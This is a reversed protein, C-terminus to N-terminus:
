RISLIYDNLSMRMGEQIIGNRRTKIRLIKERTPSDIMVHQIEITDNRMDLRLIEGDSRSQFYVADSVNCMFEFKSYVTGLSEDYQYPVDLAKIDNNETIKWIVPNNLSFCYLNMNYFFLGYIPEECIKIIKYKKIKLNYRVLEGSSTALFMDDDIILISNFGSEIGSDIVIEQTENTTLDLLYVIQKDARPIYLIDDKILFAYAFLGEVGTNDEYIRKKEKSVSNIRTVARQYEGILYFFDEHKAAGTLIRDNYQGNNNIKLKIEDIIGTELDISLLVSGDYAVVVLSDEYLTAYTYDYGTPNLVNPIKYGESIINTKPDFKLVYGSDVTVLWIINRKKDYVSARCVCCGLNCSSEKYNM